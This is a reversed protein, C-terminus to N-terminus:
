VAPARRACHLTVLVWFTFHATLSNSKKKEALHQVTSGFYPSYSAVEKQFTCWLEQHLPDPFHMEVGVKGARSAVKRNPCLPNEGLNKTKSGFCKAVFNFTVLIINQM